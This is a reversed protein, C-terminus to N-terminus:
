ASRAADCGVTPGPGPVIPPHRVSASITVSSSRRAAVYGVITLGFYEIPVVPSPRGIQAMRMLSLGLTSSAASGTAHNSASCWARSGIPPSDSSSSASQITM